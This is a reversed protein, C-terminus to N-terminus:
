FLWALFQAAFLALGGGFVIGSIQRKAGGVTLVGDGCGLDLIREGRRPALLAVVPAGLAPVFAANAAYDAADWRSSPNTGTM